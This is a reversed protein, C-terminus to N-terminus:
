FGKVFENIRYRFLFEMEKRTKHLIRKPLKVDNFLSGTYLDWLEKSFAKLFFPKVYEISRDVLGEDHVPISGGRLSHEAEGTFYEESEPYTVRDKSRYYNQYCAKYVITQVYNFCHAQSEFYRKDNYRKVLSKKVEFTAMNIFEEKDHSIGGKNVITSILRKDTITKLEEETTLYM